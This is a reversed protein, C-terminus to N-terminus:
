FNIVHRGFNLTLYQNSHLDIKYARGDVIVEGTNTVLLSGLDLKVIMEGPIDLILEGEAKDVFWQVKLKGEPSPIEAEINKLGSTSKTIIVEKMGPKAPKIGLLFEAFLAPPFASETQADSRTRGKQLIGSRGIADLWWEEWLTGNTEPELMKDFRSRFLSFSEDIYGYECLGKFLFYSMAPTVMTIGSVRQIYNHKDDILLQAAISKGQDPTAIHLALAMANAHESFMESRTGDILADAFLQKEEDWLYDQLSKRLVKARQAFESSQSDNLWLLIQAIDELAGLYHGNLNFNAGRRDNLAHDLWYAFPPNDIMGLSNTYSHLLAMLKMATPLLERTTKYDGSYLLYNRLSRIWLCNSDLIVMYDDSAAPAYAPMLGNPMQEQAVQLLYRRQLV